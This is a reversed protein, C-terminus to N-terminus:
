LVNKKVFFEDRSRQQKLYLFQELEKKRKGLYKSTAKEKTQIFKVDEKMQQRRQQDEEYELQKQEREKEALQKANVAVLEISDKVLRDAPMIDKTFIM